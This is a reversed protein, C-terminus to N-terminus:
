ATSTSPAVFFLHQVGYQGPGHPKGSRGHGRNDLAIVRYDKALAEIRGTRGWQLYAPNMFGHVLVVPTGRGEDIYHIRAGASDFYAGEPGSLSYWGAALLGASILILGLVGCIGAIYWKKRRNM